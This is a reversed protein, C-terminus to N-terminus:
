AKRARGSSVFEAEIAEIIKPFLETSTIIDSLRVRPLHERVASNPSIVTYEAANTRASLLAEGGFLGSPNNPCLGPVERRPYTLLIKAKQSSCCKGVLLLRSFTLANTALQM